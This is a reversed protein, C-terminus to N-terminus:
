RSAKGEETHGEQTFRRQLETFIEEMSAKPKSKIKSQIEENAFGQFGESLGAVEEMKSFIDDWAEDDLAYEVSDSYEKALKRSESLISELLYVLYRKNETRDPFTDCVLKLERKNINVRNGTMRLFVKMEVDNLSLDDINVYLKVKLDTPNINLHPYFILSGPLLSSKMAFRLCHDAVTRPPLQPVSSEIGQYEPDPWVPRYNELLTSHSKADIEKFSSSQRLLVSQLPPRLQYVSSFFSQIYRTVASKHGWLKSRLVMPVM